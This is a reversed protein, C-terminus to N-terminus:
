HRDASEKMKDKFDKRVGLLDDIIKENEVTVAASTPQQYQGKVARDNFDLETKFKTNKRVKINEQQKKGFATSALTLVLLSMLINKM